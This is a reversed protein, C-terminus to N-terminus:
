NINFLKKVNPWTLKIETVIEKELNKDPDYAIVNKNHALFRIIWGKGIVGCGIVAIKKIM